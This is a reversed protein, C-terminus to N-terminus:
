RLALSLQDVVESWDADHALQERILQRQGTTWFPADELSTGPPLPRHSALFREIASADAPLGLQRFLDSFTHAGSEM